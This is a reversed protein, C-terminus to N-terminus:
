PESKINELNTEDKIDFTCCNKGDVCNSIVESKLRLRPYILSDLTDEGYMYYCTVSKAQGIRHARDEAQIM